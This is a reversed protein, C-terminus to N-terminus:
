VTESENRSMTGFTSVSAGDCSCSSFVASETSESVKHQRPPSQVMPLDATEVMRRAMSNQSRQNELSDYGTNRCVLCRSIRAQMRIGIVALLLGIEAIIIYLGARKLNSNSKINDSVGPVDAYWFVATLITASVLLVIIPTYCSPVRRCTCNMYACDITCVPSVATEHSASFAPSGSEQVETSAIFDGVVTRVDDTEFEKKIYNDVKKVLDRRRPRIQRILDRLHDIKEHSIQDHTIMHRFLTLGDKINERVGDPVGSIHLLSQLNKETLEHSIDNLLLRFSDLRQSSM